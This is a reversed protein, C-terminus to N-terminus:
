ATQRNAANEALKSWTHKNQRAVKDCFDRLRSSNKLFYVVFIDVSEAFAFEAGDAAEFADEVEPLAESNLNFFRGSSPILLTLKFDAM